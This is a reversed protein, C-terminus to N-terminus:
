YGRYMADLQDSPRLASQELYNHHRTRMKTQKNIVYEQIRKEGVLLEKPYFTASLSTLDSPPHLLSTDFTAELSDTRTL